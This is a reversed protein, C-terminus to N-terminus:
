FCEKTEHNVINDCFSALLAQRKFKSSSHLVRGFELIYTISGVRAGCMKKKKSKFSKGGV